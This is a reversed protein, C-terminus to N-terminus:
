YQRGERHFRQRGFIIISSALRLEKSLQVENESDRKCRRKSVAAKLAVLILPNFLLRGPRKTQALTVTPRKLIRWLLPGHGAVAVALGAVTRTDFPPICDYAAVLWFDARFIMM